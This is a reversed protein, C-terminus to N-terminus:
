VTSHLVVQAACPRCTRMHRALPKHAAAPANVDLQSRSQSTQSLSTQSSSTHATSAAPAATMEPMALAQKGAHACRLQQGAPLANKQLICATYARPGLMWAVRVQWGQCPRGLPCVLRWVPRCGYLM